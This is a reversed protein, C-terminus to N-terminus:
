PPHPAEREQEPAAAQLAHLLKGLIHALQEREAPTLHEFLQGVAAHNALLSEKSVLAGQETLRLLTARRDDPHQERKVLGEIELGDVLKTVNRATVGLLVGVESMKCVGHCQLVMLLRARAATTGAKEVEAMIRRRFTKGFEAFLRALEQPDTM